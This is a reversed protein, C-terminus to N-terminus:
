LMRYVMERSLPSKDETYKRGWVKQLDLGNIVQYMIQRSKIIELQTRLFFPNYTNGMQRDFVDVDMTDERIAIRADATYVWPLAFTYTAGAILVLLAVSIVIEKRSRIVRWYDLFHLSSEASSPQAM